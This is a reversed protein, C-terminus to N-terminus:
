FFRPSKETGQIEHFSSDFDTPDCAPHVAFTAHM